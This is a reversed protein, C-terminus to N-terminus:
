HVEQAHCGYQDETSNQLATAKEVDDDDEKGKEKM